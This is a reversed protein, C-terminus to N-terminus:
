KKSTVYHAYKPDANLAEHYLEKISKNPDTNFTIGAAAIYAQYRKIALAIAPGNGRSPKTPKLKGIIRSRRIVAIEEGAEM